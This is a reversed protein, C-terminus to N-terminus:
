AALLAGRGVGIELVRGTRVVRRLEQLRRRSTLSEYLQTFADAREAFRGDFFERQTSETGDPARRGVQRIHGCGVCMELGDFRWAHFADSDCVQCPHAPEPLRAKSDAVKMAEHVLREGGSESSGRYTAMGEDQGPLHVARSGATM